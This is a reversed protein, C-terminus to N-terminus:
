GHPILELRIALVGGRGTSKVAHFVKVSYCPYESVQAVVDVQDLITVLENDDIGAHRRVEATDRAPDLAQTARRLFHSGDHERVEVHVVGAGGPSQLLHAAGRHVQM